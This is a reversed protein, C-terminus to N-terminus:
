APTDNKVNDENEVLNSYKGAGENNTEGGASPREHAQESFMEYQSIRRERELSELHRKWRRYFCFGAIGAILLFVFIALGIGVWM